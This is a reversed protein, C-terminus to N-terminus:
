ESEQTPTTDGAVPSAAPSDSAEPINLKDLLDNVEEVYRL